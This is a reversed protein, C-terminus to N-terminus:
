HLRGIAIIILSMGAFLLTASALVPFKARLPNIMKQFILPTFFLAPVTGLWFMFMIILATSLSEATAAGVVYGYLWGCPLLISCLGILFTYLTSKKKTQLSVMMNYPRSFISPLPMHFKRKKLLLLGMIIFTCGLFIPAVGSTITGPFRGMLEQGLFGVLLGLLLYGLLRGLHYFISDRKSKNTAIVIPGCMGLCHLSGLFSSTLVSIAILIQAQTFHLLMDHFETM